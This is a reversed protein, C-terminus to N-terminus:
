FTAHLRKVTGSGSLACTTHVLAVPFWWRLALCAGTYNKKLQSDFVDLPVGPTAAM